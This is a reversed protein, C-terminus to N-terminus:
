SSRRRSLACRRWKRKPVATAVAAGQIHRTRHVQLADVYKVSSIARAGAARTSLALPTISKRKEARAACVSAPCPACSATSANCTVCNLRTPGRRWLPDRWRRLLFQLPLLFAQRLRRCAHHARLLFPARRSVHRDRRRQRTERRSVASLTAPRADPAHLQAGRRVARPAETRATSSSLASVIFPGRKRTM